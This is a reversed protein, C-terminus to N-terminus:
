GSVPRGRIFGAGITALVVGAFLALRPGRRASPAAPAPRVIAATLVATLLVYLSTLFASVAPSVDQLGFMQLAFGGFLLAGIWAGGKWAERTLQRRAAPVLLAVLLAALGFRLTMFLAVGAASQRPGLKAEVATMAPKM